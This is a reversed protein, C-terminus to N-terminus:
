AQISKESILLDGNYSSIQIFKLLAAGDLNLSINMQFVQGPALYTGGSGAAGSGGSAAAIAAGATPGAVVAGTPAAATGAVLGSSTAAVQSVAGTDSTQTDVVVGDRTTTKTTVTDTTTSGDGNTTKTTQVNTTTVTGNSNTVVSQQNTTTTTPTTSNLGNTGTDGSSGGSGGGSTSPTMASSVATGVGGVLAALGSYFALTGAAAAAGAVIGAPGPIAQVESNFAAAAAEAGRAEIVGAAEKAVSGIVAGAGAEIADSLSKGAKIQSDVASVFASEVAQFQQTLKQTEEKQIKERDASGKAQITTQQDQLTTSIKDAQVAYTQQDILGADLKNKLAQLQLVANTQATNTEAAEEGAVIALKEQLSGKTGALQKAYFDQVSKLSDTNHKEETALEENELDVKEKLQDQALKKQEDAAKTAIATQQDAAAQQLAKLQENYQEQTIQRSQLKNALVQEQLTLNNTITATEAGAEAQIIALKQAYSTTTLSKQTDFSAQINKLSETNHKEDAELQADLVDAHQKTFAAQAGTMQNLGTQFGDSARKMAATTQDGLGDFEGKMDRLAQKAVEWGARFNGRLVEGLAVWGETFADLAAALTDKLLLVLPALASVLAGAWTVLGSLGDSMSSVAPALSDMISAAATEFSAQLQQFSANDKVVAIVGQLAAQMLILNLGLRTLRSGMRDFVDAGEEAAASASTQNAALNELEAGMQEAETIATALAIDLADVATGADSASAAFDSTQADLAQLDAAASVLDGTEKNFIVNYTVTEDADSM